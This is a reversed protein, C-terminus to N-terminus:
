SYIYRSIEKKHFQVVNMVKDDALYTRFKAVADSALKFLFEAQEVYDIEPFNILENVIINEPTDPHDEKGYCIMRKGTGEIEQGSNERFLPYNLSKTDLGFVHFGSKVEGRQLIMIRPIEIVNTAFEDVVTEYAAEVERVM